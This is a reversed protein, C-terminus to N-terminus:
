NINIQGQSLGGDPDAVSYRFSAAGNFNEYPRFTIDDGSQSVWGGYAAGVAVISLSNPTEIDTDNALLAAASFHIISDEDATASENTVLPADNVPTIVFNARATGYGGSGDSVTYDFAAPGSYNAEPRFTVSGDGNVSVTCHEANAVASVGLAGHPTDADTDNALLAEKLNLVMDEASTITEGTVVPADNVNAVHITATGSATAGADDAVTYNFSADGAFDVDPVFHLTGDPQQTVTGHSAGGVAIVHLSGLPSDIDRDNALLAAPDIDLPTDEVGQITEGVVTPADNVAAIELVVHASSLGGHGDSATYDFSGPGSYDADPVFVVQDNIMTVTGGHANGVATISLADDDVDTDNGTLAASTWTLPTDELGSASDDRALPADNVNAVNVTVYGQAEGGAGDAVTYAFGAEGFFDPEPTFEIVQGATTDRWRM